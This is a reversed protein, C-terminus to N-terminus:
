RYNIALCHRTLTLNHIVPGSGVEIKVNEIPGFLVLVQMVFHLRSSVCFTKCRKLPTWVVCRLRLRTARMGSWQDISTSSDHHYDTSWHFPMCPVRKRKRQTTHIGRLGRNVTRSVKRRFRIGVPEYSTHGVTWKLQAIEFIFRNQVESSQISPM